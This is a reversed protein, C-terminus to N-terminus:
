SSMSSASSRLETGLVWTLLSLSVELEWNLGDSARKPVELTGASVYAWARREGRGVM